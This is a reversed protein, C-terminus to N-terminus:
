VNELEGRVRLTFQTYSGEESDITMTFRDGYFLKLRQYVNLIGFSRTVSQENLLSQRLQALRAPAIGQGNDFVSIMCAGTSEDMKTDIIITCRRGDPKLAHNLVNEVMPQITLKPIKFASAKDDHRIQYEVYEIYRMRQLALYNRTLEIEEGLTINEKGGSLSLRYFSALNQIADQANTEKGLKILASIMGLTNYLFHPIIQAQLLRVENHRRQRQEMYIQETAEDAKDMLHNFERSLLNMELINSEPCRLKEKGNQAREIQKMVAIMRNLPKTLQKSVFWSVLLAVVLLLLLIMWMFFSLNQQQIRLEDLVTRGVLRFQSGEIACSMYLVPAEDKPEALLQGKNLCSVWQAETMGLAQQIDQGLYDKDEASVIKGQSNVLYFQRNLNGPANSLVDSFSTERVFLIITGLRHGTDSQVYKLVAFVCEERNFWVGSAERWLLDTWITSKQEMAKQLDQAPIIDTDYSTGTSFFSYIPETDAYVGIGAIRFSSYLLQLSVERWADNLSATDQVGSNYEELLFQTRENLSLFKAFDETYSILTDVNKQVAITTEAYDDVARETILQSFKRNCVFWFAALTIVAVM